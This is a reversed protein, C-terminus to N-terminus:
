AADVDGDSGPLGKVEPRPALVVRTLCPETGPGYTVWLTDGDKDVEHGCEACTPLVDHKESVVWGSATPSPYGCGDCPEHESGIFHALYQEAFDDPKLRAREAEIVGADIFPNDSSPSNWVAYRPDRGNEGLRFHKRFWNCGNPTSLMLLWGDRDVLRPSLFKTWVEEKVRAAEDLVLWDLAEGLLTVPKDASKAYVESVGGSLNRLAIRRGRISEVRHPLHQRVVIEIEGFIRNALDLTPAVVWGRSRECPAMLAAVAEMAACRSKGWRAGCAMIRRKAPSEHVELQGPHPQYGLMGFLAPKDLRLTKRAM